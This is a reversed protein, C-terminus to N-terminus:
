GSKVYLPFKFIIQQAWTGKKRELTYLKLDLDLMNSPFGHGQLTLLEKNWQNKYNENYKCTCYWVFQEFWSYIRTRETQMIWQNEKQKKM